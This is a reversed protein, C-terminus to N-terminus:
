DHWGPGPEALSFALELTKACAEEKEFKFECWIPSDTVDFGSIDVELINGSGQKELQENGLTQGGIAHKYYTVESTDAPAPEAPLM